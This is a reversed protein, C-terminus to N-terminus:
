WNVPSITDMEEGTIPHCFRLRTAHLMLRTALTKAQAHAYFNDGLIPHGLSLLHVRLQHSRGTHPELLVQSTNQQEDRALVQFHTRAPRGEEFCVKQLPRNPWDTILPLDILGSDEAVLGYVIAEYSKQVQRHQFLGSLKGHAKKHLALVMIGSTDMDLRHVIMATPWQNQLRTVLSDNNLPHRGPVSLLGSPKAVLLLHEDSYLVVPEEACHPAIFESPPIGDPATMAPMRGCGTVMVVHQRRGPLLRIQKAAPRGAYPCVGTDARGEM